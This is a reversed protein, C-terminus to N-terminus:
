PMPARDPSTQTPSSPQSTQPPTPPPAQDLKKEYIIKGHQDVAAIVAVPVDTPNAAYINDSVPVSDVINGNNNLLEIRSIADTAFGALKNVRVSGDPSPSIGSLDAIPESASPFTGLQDGCVLADIRPNVAPAFGIGFCYNGDPQKSVYFSTGDREGLLRVGQTPFGVSQLASLQWSPLEGTPVTSGTNSIGLIQGIEDAFAVTPVAIIVLAAALFVLRRVPTRLAGRKRRQTSAYADLIALLEPEHALLDVLEPDRLVRRDETV